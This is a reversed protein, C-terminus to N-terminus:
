PAPALALLHVIAYNESLSATATLAPVKGPTPMALEASIGTRNGNDNFDARKITGLPRSWSNISPPSSSHGVFTAIVVAGPASTSLQPAAYSTGSSSLDMGTHVDIPSGPNVGSYALMWGVGDISASSSWTYSAPESAGVVHWCVVMATGNPHDLRDVLTWGNPSGIAPNPNGSLGVAVVAVLLDGAAVGAPVTVRMATDNGYGEGRVGVFTIGPSGGDRRGLDTGAGGFLDGAGGDVAGLLRGEDLRSACGSSLLCAFLM